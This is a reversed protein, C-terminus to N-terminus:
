PIQCIVPKVYKVESPMKIMSLSVSRRGSQFGNFETPLWLAYNISHRMRKSQEVTFSNSYGYFYDMFNTAVYSTGNCSVRNFRERLAGPMNQNYANRDYYPTDSCYDPDTTSCTNFESGDGDFVHALGLMHGAEHALIEDTNQNILHKANLFIGFPLFPAQGKSINNVGALPVTVYPYYAWSSNEYEGQINPYVWVNIVQDPNWFYSFADTFTDEQTFSVKSSVVRELGPTALLDGDLGSIAPYFEVFIDTANVDKPGNANNLTNRYAKTMGDTLEKVRAATLSAGNVEHFIVPMRVLPYSPTAVTKITVSNSTLGFGKAVFTYSGPTRTTFVNGTQEENVFLVIPFDGEIVKNGDRLEIRFEVFDTGNPFIEKAPNDVVTILISLSAPDWVNVKITDSVANALKGTLKYIGAQTPLFSEGILKEGNAYYSITENPTTVQTGGIQYAIASLPIAQKDIGLFYNLETLKTMQLRGLKGFRYYDDVPRVDNKDCGALFFALFTLCYSYLLLRPYKKM